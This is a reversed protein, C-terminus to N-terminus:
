RVRKARLFGQFTTLRPEWARFGDIITGVFGFTVTQEAFADETGNFVVFAVATLVFADAVFADDAVSATNLYSLLFHTTFAHTVDFENDGYSVDPVETWEGVLNSVEETKGWFFSSVTM